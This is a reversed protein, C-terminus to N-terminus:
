VIRFEAGFKDRHAACYLDLYRQPSILDDSREIEEVLDADM